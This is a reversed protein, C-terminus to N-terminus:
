VAQGRPTPPKRPTKPKAEKKIHLQFICFSHNRMPFIEDTLFNTTSRSLNLDTIYENGKKEIYEDRWRVGEGSGRWERWEREVGEGSGRWEREVGEGSGRWEREVGEGSGRWEREVGEGSGRWEREVGVGERM